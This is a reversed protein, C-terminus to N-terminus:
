GQKRIRQIILPIRLAFLFLAAIFYLLPERIDKKVLLMYHLIGLLTAPFILTHLRKWRPFTLRRIMNNTSTAALPVLLLYTLIGVYIRPHRTADKLIAKFDLLQDLGLYIMLHLSAYFFSYLGAMRRFRKASGMRPLKSLPTLSLTILLFNLAWDGSRHLIKEIPRAGLGGMEGTFGQYLSLFVPTLCALFILHHIIRFIWRSRQGPDNLDIM